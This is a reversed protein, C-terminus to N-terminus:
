LLASDLSNTEPILIYKSIERELDYLYEKLSEPWGFIGIRDDFTNINMEYREAFSPTFKLSVRVPCITSRGKDKDSDTLILYTLFPNSSDTEKLRTYAVRLRNENWLNEKEIAQLAIMGGFM